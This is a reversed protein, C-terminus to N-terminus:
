AITKHFNGTLFNGNKGVLSTTKEIGLNNIWGCKLLEGATPRNEPEFEFIRKFVEKVGSSSTPPVNYIGRQIKLFMEKTQLAKFPFTGTVLVYLVVGAAWVDTPPGLFQQNALIEPAMYNQTGCFLQMKKESLVYTSFGFDIIKINHREDMLINELKIDRHSVGLNHCFDLALLIQKFISKAQYEEIKHSSRSKLYEALSCGSVYEFILNISNPTEVTKLLSIINPHSLKSLIKIEREVTKKRSPNLLRAKEYIKIAVKENTSRHLGLRVTAYTGKGLEEAIFYDGVCENEKRLSSAIFRPLVEEKNSEEIKTNIERKNKLSSETNPRRHLRTEKKEKNIMTKRKVLLEVLGVGPTNGVTNQQWSGVVRANIRQKSGSREVNGESLCMQYVRTAEVTLKLEGVRHKTKSGM